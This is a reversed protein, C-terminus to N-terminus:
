RSNYESMAEALATRFRGVKGEDGEVRFRVTERIFHKEVEISLDLGLIFAMDRIFTPVRAFRPAVVVESFSAM